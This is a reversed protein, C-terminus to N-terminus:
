APEAATATRDLKHMWISESASAPGVSRVAISAVDQHQENGWYVSIVESAKVIGDAFRLYPEHWVEIVEFPLNSDV